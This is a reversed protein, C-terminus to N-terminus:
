EASDAVPGNEMLEVDAINGDAVWLFANGVMRSFEVVQDEPLRRLDKRAEQIMASVTKFQWTGKVEDPALTIIQDIVYALRQIVEPYEKTSDTPSQGTTPEIDTRRTKRNRRNWMTEATSLSANPSMADNELLDQHESTM